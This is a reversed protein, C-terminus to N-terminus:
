DDQVDDCVEAQNYAECKVLETMNFRTGAFVTRALGFPALRFGKLLVRNLWGLKTIWM